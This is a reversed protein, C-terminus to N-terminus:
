AIALFLYVAGSINVTGTATNTITFGPAYSDVFDTSTVEGTVINWRSYPDNSPVIGRATDWVYWDGSIGSEARKIMVFRAGNSFGCDVDLTGATGTYSGVKSVGPCSAFAQFIFGSSVGSSAGSYAGPNFTFGTSTPDTAGWLGSVGTSSIYGSATSLNLYKSNGGISTYVFWQGISLSKVFLLEPVARLNHRVTRVGTTIHQALGQDYFSAAEKFGYHVYNYSKQLTLQEDAGFVLGTMQYDLVGSNFLVGSGSPIRTIVYADHGRSGLQRSHLSTMSNSGGDRANAFLADVKIGFNVFGSTTSPTQLRQTYVSQANVPPRMLGKRVAVYIYTQGSFSDQSNGALTKFGSSQPEADRVDPNVGSNLAFSESDLYGFRNVNNIVIWHGGTASGSFTLAPKTLIFAPEFGFDILNAGTGAYYHANYSGCKIINETGDEGFGGDSGDAFIYATYVAGSINTLNGSAVGSAGLSGVSFGTTTPFTANWPFGTFSPNGTTHGTANLLIYGTPLGIMMDKHWCVWNGTADTRKVAIFGPNGNLNHPITQSTGNGTYTVIDFFKSAKRFTYSTYARGSGNILTGSGSVRYGSTTFTHVAGTSSIASLSGSNFTNLYNDTGNVDTVWAAGVGAAITTMRTLVLGGYTELNIGNNIETVPSGGVGGSYGSYTFVSFVDEVYLTQDSSAGRALTYTVPDM